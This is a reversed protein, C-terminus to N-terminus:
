FELRAIADQIQADLRKTLLTRITEREEESYKSFDGKWEPLEDYGGSCPHLTASAVIDESNSDIVLVDIFSYACGLHVGFLNKHFVGYSAASGKAVAVEIPDETNPLSRTVAVMTSFGQQRGLGSIKKLDAAMWMSGSSSDYFSKPPADGLDVEKITYGKAQLGAILKHENLDDIAWEPVVSSTSENGWITVGNYINGIESGLLSAVGIHSATMKAKSEPPLKTTACASLLAAVVLVLARFNWKM